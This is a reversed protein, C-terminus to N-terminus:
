QDRFVEDITKADLLKEAWLDLQEPTAKSLREQFLPALVDRGFRKAFLRQIISQRGKERGEERGEELGEELGTQGRVHRLQLGDAM